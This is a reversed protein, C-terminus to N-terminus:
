SSPDTAQLYTDPTILQLNSSVTPPLAFPTPWLFSLPLLLPLMHPVSALAVLNLQYTYSILLMPHSNPQLPLLHLNTMTTPTHPPQTMLEMSAPDHHRCRCPQPCTCSTSAPNVYSTLHCFFSQTNTDLSNAFTSSWQTPATPHLLSAHEYFDSDLLHDM